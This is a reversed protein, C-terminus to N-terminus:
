RSYLHGIKEWGLMNARNLQERSLYPNVLNSDIGFGPSKGNFIDKNNNEVMSSPTDNTEKHNVLGLEYSFNKNNKNLIKKANKQLYERYDWNSKINEKKMIKENVSEEPIYSSFTRGDQM